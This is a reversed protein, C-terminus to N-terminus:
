LYRGILRNLHGCLFAIIPYFIIISIYEAFLYGFHPILDYLCKLLILGFVFLVTAVLSYILWQIQFSSNLLLKRNFQGVFFSICYLFPSLGFPIQLLIDAASGLLFVIFINLIYPNFVSFYFIVGWLNTLYSQSYGFMDFSLSKLLIFICGLLFPTSLFFRKKIESRM